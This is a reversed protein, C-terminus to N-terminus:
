WAADPLNEYVDRLFQEIYYEFHKAKLPDNVTVSRRGTQYQWIVAADGRRLLAFECDLTVVRNDKITSVNFLDVTIVMVADADSLSCMVPENVMSQKAARAMLLDFQEVSVTKYHKKILTPLSMERLLATVPKHYRDSEILDEFEADNPMALTGGSRNRIPAVAITKPRYELVGGSAVTRKPETKGDCGAFTLAVLFFLAIHLLSIRSM